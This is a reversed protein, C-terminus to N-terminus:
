DNIARLFHVIDLDGPSYGYATLAEAVLSRHETGHNVVHALLHWLLDQQRGGGTRQYHIVQELEAEALERLFEWMLEEEKRWRVQLAELTPFEDFALLATPSRREQCRVRWIWEASLIHVLENRLSGHGYQRPALFQEPSLKVVQECLRDRAWYNYEYLFHLDQVQM